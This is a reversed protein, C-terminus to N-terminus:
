YGVFQLTFLLDHGLTVVFELYVCNGALLVDPMDLWIAVDM